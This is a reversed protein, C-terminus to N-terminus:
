DHLSGCLRLEREGGQRCRYHLFRDLRHSGRPRARVRDPDFMFSLGCGYLDGLFDPCESYEAQDMAAPTERESRAAIDPLVSHCQM